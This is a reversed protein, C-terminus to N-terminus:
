SFCLWFTVIGNFFTVIGNFQYKAFILYVKFILVLFFLINHNSDKFNDLVYFSYNDIAYIANTYAYYNAYDYAYHTTYASAGDYAHADNYVHANNNRKREYVRACWERAM